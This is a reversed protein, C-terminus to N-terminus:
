LRLLKKINLYAKTSDEKKMTSQLCDHIVATILKSKNEGTDDLREHMIKDSALELYKKSMIGFYYLTLDSLLERKKPDEELERDSLNYKNKLKRLIVQNTDMFYNLLNDSMLEQEVEGEVGPSASFIKNARKLFEDATEDSREQSMYTGLNHKIVGKIHEDGASKGALLVANRGMQGFLETIISSLARVKAEPDMKENDTLSDVVKKFLQDQMQMFEERMNEEFMHRRPNPLYEIAAKEPVPEDFKGKKWKGLDRTIGLTSLLETRALSAKGVSMRPMIYKEVLEEVLDRKQIITLSNIDWIGHASLHRGVTVEPPLGTYNTIIEGMRKRILEDGSAM